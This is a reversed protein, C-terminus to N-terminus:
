YFAPMDVVKRYLGGLAPMLGSGMKTGLGVGAGIAGIAGNRTVADKLQSLGSAPASYHLNFTNPQLEPKPSGDFLAGKEPKLITKRARGLDEASEAM